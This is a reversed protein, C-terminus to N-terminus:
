VHDFDFIMKSGKLSVGMSIRPPNRWKKQQFLTKTFCGLLYYTDIEPGSITNFSSFHFHCIHYIFTRGFHAHVKQDRFTINRKCAKLPVSMKQIQSTKKNQSMKQFQSVRHSLTLFPSYQHSVTFIPLFRQSVTLFPSFCHSVTVFPSFSIVWQYGVSLWRIVRQYGM